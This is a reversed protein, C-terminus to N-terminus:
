IKKLTFNRTFMIQGYYFEVLEKKYRELHDLAENYDLYTDPSNEGIVYWDVYCKLEPINVFTKQKYQVFYRPEFLDKVQFIKITAKQYLDNTEFVEQVARQALKLDKYTKAEKFEMSLVPKSQFKRTFVSYQAGEGIVVILYRDGDTLNFPRENLTQSNIM